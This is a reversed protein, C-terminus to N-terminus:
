NMHLACEVTTGKGAASGIKLTAGIMEARHQMIRLDPGESRLGIKSVTLATSGGTEPEYVPSKRRKMALDACVRGSFVASSFLHWKVVILM